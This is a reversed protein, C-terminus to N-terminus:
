EGTNNQILAPPNGREWAAKELANRRLWDLRQTSLLKAISIYAGGSLLEKDRLEEAKRQLGDLSRVGNSVQLPTLPKKM